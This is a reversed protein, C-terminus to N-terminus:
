YQPMIIFELVVISLIYITGLAAFLSFRARRMAADYFAAPLTVRRYIGPRRANRYVNDNSGQWSSAPHRALFQQGDQPLEIENATGERFNYASLDGSGGTPLESEFVQSLMRFERERAAELHSASLPILSLYVSVALVFFFINHLIALKQRVKLGGFARLVVNPPKAPS